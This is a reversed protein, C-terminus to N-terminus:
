DDTYEVSLQFSTVNTSPSATEVWLFSNAPVTADNFSTLVNGTTTSNATSGGTIVENGVASRDTSHRLTWALSPTPSGVLVTVMESITMAVPAYFFSIDETTTPAEITISKTQVDNAEAGAEIGALKTVAPSVDELVLGIGRLHAALHATNTGYTADTTPSYNVGPQTISLQDGDIADYQGHIHSGSHTYFAYTTLGSSRVITGSASSYYFLDLNTLGTPDVDNLELFNIPGPSWQTGSYLLAEGTTPTASNVATGQIAVVDPGPYTGGLDGSAAGSPPLSTPIQDDVYGKNAADAPLTPSALSNIQSGGLSVAGTFARTGDVLIYQTHDDDGLGTLTGHDSAGGVAPSGPSWQSGSYVWTQGATPTASSCGTGQIAVVSPNAYTGSLDGGAADGVMVAGAAAVNAADTVDALAEIGALKTREGPSMYLRTASPDLDDTDRTGLWTLARADNHYQTHDDDALGDLAGHDTVVAATISANVYGKNAADTVAVPSGLSTLLNGGMSQNGTFARTGGVLIYQTHDDDGLGTLAGHDTVGSPLTSPSWVTGSYILAQGSSPATSSVGTGQIAVVTPSPYTGSLDGAAATTGIMVAGAATVNATDTVDANTEIGSLKGEAATTYSATTADLVASHAQVDLGITLGLNSRATSADSAGTGGDAVAVDTGGPRYVATPSWAAGTYVLGDGTSPANASVGTGQIAVVTPGPYTGGLDGSAAGSPPLSTPIQADVYGKNAADSVVTPSGLSTILNGGLSQSGTFARTGAVLVYQTHDDDTLGGLGGHDTIVASTIAADVYGKNAGGSATTPSGLSTILNGGLSQNGSFARTGATLIYQTHDDDGLGILAGHDTVVNADVYGKNAGDSATTPSGLSTIKNGGLSQDGTFARTGAVLVYQTHDDDGLGGLGGHDTIVSATIQDDVYGKNAAWSVLIPSAVDTIENGGMGISGSFDRSGDALIYQTHDDDLLGTLTGHDTAAGTAPSGPSWASGTYVWTQGPTPAAASTSIGQIAVVSPNPYTGGLDGGAAGGPAGASPLAWTLDERLFLVPSPSSTVPSVWRLGTSTSSDLTLLADDVTPGLVVEDSGDYTLLDGKQTFPLVAVSNGFSVFLRGRDDMILPATRGDGTVQSAPTAGVQVGLIVTGLQGADPSDGVPEVGPASVVTTQLHGQPDVVLSRFNELGEPTSSGFVAVSDENHDTSVAISGAEINIEVGDTGYISVPVPRGPRYFRGEGDALRSVHHPTHIETDESTRLTWLNLHADYLQVNDAM